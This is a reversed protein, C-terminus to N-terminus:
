HPPNIASLVVTEPTVVAMPLLPIPFVSIVPNLDNESLDDKVSVSSFMKITDTSIRQNGEINIEDIIEARLVSTFIFLFFILILGIKNIFRFMTM